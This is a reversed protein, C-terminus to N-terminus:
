NSEPNPNRTDPKIVHNNAPNSPDTLGRSSITIDPSENHGDKGAGCVEYLPFDSDLEGVYVSPNLPQGDETMSCQEMVTLEVPLLCYTVMFRADGAPVYVLADDTMRRGESMLYQYEVHFAAVIFVREHQTEDNVQPKTHIHADFPSKITPPAIYKRKVKWGVNWQTRILM